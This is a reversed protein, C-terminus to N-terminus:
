FDNLLIKNKIIKNKKYSMFSVRLPTNLIKKYEEILPTAQLIYYHYKNKSELNQINKNLKERQIELKKKVHNSLSKSNNIINNTKYLQDKYIDITQHEDKFTQLISQHIEIIDTSKGDKM